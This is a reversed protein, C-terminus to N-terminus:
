KLTKELLWCPENQHHIVGLHDLYSWKGEDQGYIRYGLREYLQRAKVNERAVAIRVRESGQSMVIAEGEELLRTGIGMDRFMEMVRFAYFYAPPDEEEDAYKLSHLLIFLQGIPFDNSTALLM